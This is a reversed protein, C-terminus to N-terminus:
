SPVVGAAATAPSVVADDTEPSEVAATVPSAATVVRGGDTSIEVDAPRVLVETGILAFLLM